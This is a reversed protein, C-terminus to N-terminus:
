GRVLIGEFVIGLLIEERQSLVKSVLEVVKERLNEALVMSRKKLDEIMAIRSLRRLAELAEAVVGLGKRDERYLREGDVRWYRHVLINRLSALRALM